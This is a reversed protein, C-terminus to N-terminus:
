IYPFPIGYFEFLLRQEDANLLRREKIGERLSDSSHIDTYMQRVSVGIRVAIESRSRLKLINEEQFTKDLPMKNLSNIYGNQPKYNKM